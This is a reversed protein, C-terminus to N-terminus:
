KPKNTSKSIYLWYVLNVYAPSCLEQESTDILGVSEAREIILAKTIIDSVTQSHLTKKDIKLIDVIFKRFARLIGKSVVDRRRTLETKNTHVNKFLREVQDLRTGTNKNNTLLDSTKKSHQSSKYLDLNIEDIDSDKPLQDLENSEKKSTKLVESKEINNRLIYSKAFDVQEDFESNNLECHKLSQNLVPVSIDFLQADEQATPTSAFEFSCM